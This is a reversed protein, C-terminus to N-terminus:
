SCFNRERQQKTKTQRRSTAPPTDRHAGESSHCPSRLLPGKTKKRTVRTWETDDPAPDPVRPLEAPQNNATPTVIPTENAENVAEVTATPTAVSEEEDENVTEVVVREANNNATPATVPFLATLEKLVRTQTPSLPYLPSKPAPNNLAAAIDQLSAAIIDASSAGPMPIEEPYWVVTDSTRESRTRTIYTRYCRYSDLAPGIYFGNESHASWSGRQDPKVHVQVKIGPPALPTRNNDFVGFVQEYASLKPNLRSGRLMNLTIASQPILRDWLHLPFDTSTSCIGAILHNKYTRIAREAANRRKMGPPVLQFDIDEDHMFQKLIDSCENDLKQLKPRLGAQVLRAHVKKYAELISEKTKSKM